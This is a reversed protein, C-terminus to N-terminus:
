DKPSTRPAALFIPAQGTINNDREYEKVKALGVAQVARQTFAFVQFGSTHLCIMHTHTRTHTHRYHLYIYICIYPPLM